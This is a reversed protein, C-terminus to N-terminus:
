QNLKVRKGNIITAVPECKLVTSQITVEGKDVCSKVVEAQPIYKGALFAAAITMAWVIVGATLGDM